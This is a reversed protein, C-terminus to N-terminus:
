IRNNNVIQYVSNRTFSKETFLNKMIFKGNEKFNFDITVFNDIIYNINRNNGISLIQYKKINAQLICKYTYRAITETGCIFTEYQSLDIKELGAVHGYKSIKYYDIQGLNDVCAQYRKLMTEDNQDYGIFIANKIKQKKVMQNVAEYDPFYLNSCNTELKQGIIVVPCIMEELFQYKEGSIAFVIIGNVNKNNEIILKTKEMSFLTETILFEVDEDAQEM